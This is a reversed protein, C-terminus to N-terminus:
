PGIRNQQYVIAAIAAIATITKEQFISDGGKIYGPGIRLRCLDDTKLKM